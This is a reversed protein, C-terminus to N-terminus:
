GDSNAKSILKLNIVLIFRNLSETFSSRTVSIPPSQLFYQLPQTPLPFRFFNCKMPAEKESM